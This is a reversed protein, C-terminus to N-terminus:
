PYVKRRRVLALVFWILIMAGLIEPIYVTPETLLTHLIGQAWHTLDLKEFAFGYLPWLLTRPELWMQDQVLHMGTGFSLVLLWLKGRNQYLYYGALTILILFLLTHYFIRGNSFTDRFFFQGIPKDIFDPLLSGILLLRIDIRNGLSTLWSARSGSTCNRAPVLESSARLHEKEKTEKSTPSYSKTLAGNLLVTTGLTIGVHGFILM